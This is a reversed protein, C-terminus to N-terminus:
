TIYPWYVEFETIRYLIRNENHKISSVRVNITAIKPAPVNYTNSYGGGGTQFSEKLIAAAGATVGRGGLAGTSTHHAGYVNNSTNLSQGRYPAAPPLGVAGIGTLTYRREETTVAAPKSYNGGLVAAAAQQFRAPPPKSAAGLVQQGMM